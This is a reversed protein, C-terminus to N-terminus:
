GNKKITNPARTAGQKNRLGSKAFRNQWRREDQLFCAFEKKKKPPILRIWKWFGAFFLWWSKQWIAHNVQNLLLMCILYSLVQWRDIFIILMSFVKANLLGACFACKKRSTKKFSLEQHPRNLWGFISFRSFHNNKVRSSVKIYFHLVNYHKRALAKDPRLFRLRNMSFKLTMFTKRKWSTFKSLSGGWCSCILGKLSM